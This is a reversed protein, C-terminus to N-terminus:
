RAAESVRSGGIMKHYCDNHYKDEGDNVVSGGLPEACWACLDKKAAARDILRQYVVAITNDPDPVPTADVVIPRAPKEAQQEAHAIGAQKAYYAIWAEADSGLMLESLAWIAADAHDPSGEGRYGLTTFAVLQDELVPFRGVHHVKINKFEPPDGYLASIPEARVVKGRSATVVKVPVNEDVARITGRVMEGGYNTEAVICDAGLDRYMKIAVGAWVHPADRISRDALVYGHGDVGLAAGVIGIEDRSEDAASKAGSPDVAVVVRRRNELPLDDVRGHEIGEYTWLAGELEDVYVGEYFRLRQRPPLNQLSFLYEASLNAANERPNLFLRQYNHPDVLPQRTVPDKKDGFLVNSWHGKGVPNLDYYARQSLTEGDDGIKVVQALRTLVTLIVQYALQSCENFLITAYERGLIKDVREPEDLGGVWIESANPFTFYGDHWHPVLEVNPYRLRLIKPLTDLAIATKAANAALRTILHRSGAARLARNIIALVLIATKGSRSGGVLCTHRQSGTLLVSGRQQGPNLVLM